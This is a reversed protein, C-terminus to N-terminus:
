MTCIGMINGYGPQNFWPELVLKVTYCCGSLQFVPLMMSCGNHFCKEANHKHNNYKFGGSVWIFGITIYILILNYLGYSYCLVLYVQWPNGQFAQMKLDFVSVRQLGQGPSRIVGQTQESQGTPSSPRAVINMGLSPCM